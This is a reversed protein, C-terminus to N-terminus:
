SVNLKVKDYNIPNLISQTETWTIIYHQLRVNKYQLGRSFDTSLFM